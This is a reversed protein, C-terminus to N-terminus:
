FMVSAFTGVQRFGVRAYVRRAIANYDNVYLSVVPAVNDLVHRVVSALCATGIGRGRWRPHVWVGQLQCVRDTVAGLDAKFVVTGNDIRALAWRNAILDRLRSRYAAGGDRGLPSVGIEETFMASAAPLLADAEEPRVLRVAPDGAVAPPETCVLLPQRVRVARAPAWDGALMSWLALVPQAPGVISSCRRGQSRARVAFAALGDPHDGVPVLNPGSLCAALLPAGPPAPFGWLQGGFEGSSLGLAGVRSAVPCNAVPDSDLLTRLAPYDAPELARATHLHLM